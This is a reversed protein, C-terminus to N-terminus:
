QVDEYFQFGLIKNVMLKSHTYAEQDSVPERGVDKIFRKRNQEKAIQQWKEDSMMKIDLLPVFCGLKESKVMRLVKAEDIISM